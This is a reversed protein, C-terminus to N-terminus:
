VEANCEANKAKEAVFNAHEFVRFAKSGKNIQRISKLDGEPIWFCRLALFFVM